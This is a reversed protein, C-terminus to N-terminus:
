CTPSRRATTAGARWRWRRTASRGGASTTPRGCCSPPSSPSCGRAGRITPTGTLELAAELVAVRDDDVFGTSSAFGRWNALVARVLLDHDGAARAQHAAELLTERFEARGAHSQAEGLGILLERRLGPDQAELAKAREFWSVAEDPALQTLAARGAAAAYRVAHAQADAGSAAAWHTALEGVDPGRAGQSGAGGRDPPAAAGPAGREAAGGARAVRARARVLLPGTRGRQRHRARGRRRRRPSRPRHGRRRGRGRGAARSRLRPRDGGRLAAAARDRSRAAGRTRPDRGPRQGAVAPSRGIVVRGGRRPAARARHRLVPQRRDRPACRARAPRRVRRADRAALPGRGPEPGLAGPPRRHARPPSGRAVGEVRRGPLALPATVVVLLPADSAVALQIHRLVALTPRGSWHVDDVVLLLPAEEAAQEVLGTIAAFLLYRETEPDTPEPEPLSGVREQLMPALRALDGGHREVHRLLAATGSADVLQALVQRWPEYPLGAEESSRGYLVRAGHERAHVALRTVLRTKGIGPEGSILVLRREGAVARDWAGTLQAWERERGVFDTAAPTRLPAPLPAHEAGAPLPTWGVSWVLVPGPLGKLGRSGVPHFEAPDNPAALLRVVEGCLIQGGAAGACLRAAEVAAPGYWDGDDFVADGVALGVRVALQTAAGRNALEVGQQIAVACGVADTASECAVMLGDGVGKVETGGNRAIAERLVAFHDRRVQEMRASGIETALATSGVLDSFLLAITRPPAPTVPPAQAHVPRPARRPRRRAAAAHRELGRHERAHLHHAPPRAPAQPPGPRPSSGGAGIHNPFSPPGDVGVINTVADPGCIERAALRGSTVAAELCGVDLGNATWDGALLLNKFRTGRATLRDKVSGPPTLVYREPPSWNARVYQGALPDAASGPPHLRNRDLRAGIGPWLAKLDNDIFRELHARAEADAAGQDPQEPLAGCLYAIHRVDGAWDEVDVVHAMDAMTDLPEVFCSLLSAAQFDQGLVDASDKLWLQAAQTAISRSSKLMADYSEDHARLEACIQKQVEPPVALIVHERNLPTPELTGRFPGHELESANPITPLDSPWTVLKPDAPMRAHEARLEAIQEDTLQQVVDLSEIWEGDASPRLATVAHFFEVKVGRQELVRAIPGIVTDSM